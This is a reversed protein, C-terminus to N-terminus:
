SEEELAEDRDDKAKKREALVEDILENSVESFNNVFNLQNKIEHAIDATLEGLNAMKESQILQAQAAKLEILALETRAKEEKLRFLDLTAQHALKEAQKLDNFRTYTLNFVAAFRELLKTTEM